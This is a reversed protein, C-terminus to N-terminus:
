RQKFFLERTGVQPYWLPFELLRDSVFCMYPLLGLGPYLCTITRLNRGLGACSCWCRGCACCPPFPARSWCRLTCQLQVSTCGPPSLVDQWSIGALGPAGPEGGSICAPPIRQFTRESTRKFTRQFTRKFSRIFTCM